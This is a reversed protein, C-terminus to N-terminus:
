MFTAIKLYRDQQLFVCKEATFDYGLAKDIKCFPITKVSMKILMNNFM